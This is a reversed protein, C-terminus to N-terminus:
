QTHVQQCLALTNSTIQQLTQFTITSPHLMVKLLKETMDVHTFTKM